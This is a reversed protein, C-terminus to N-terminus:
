LKDKCRWEVFPVSLVGKLNAGTSAVPRGDNVVRGRERENRTMGRTGKRRRIKQIDRPHVSRLM